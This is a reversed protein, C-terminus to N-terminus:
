TQQDDLRKEKKGIKGGVRQVEYTASSGRSKIILVADKGSNPLLREFAKKAEVRGFELCGLPLDPHKYKRGYVWIEEVVWKPSHIKIDSRYLYNVLM